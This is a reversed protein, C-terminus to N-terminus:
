KLQAAIEQIRANMEVPYADMIRRIEQITALTNIAQEHSDNTKDPVFGFEAIMLKEPTQKNDPARSVARFARYRVAEDSTDMNLIQIRTSIDKEKISNTQWNTKLLLPALQSSMGVVDIHSLLETISADDALRFSRKFESLKATQSDSLKGNADIVKKFAEIEHRQQALTFNFRMSPELLQLILDRKAEDTVDAAILAKTAAADMAPQPESPAAEVPAPPEDGMIGTGELEKLIQLRAEATDAAEAPTLSGAGGADATAGEVPTSPPTASDASGKNEKEAELPDSNTSTGIDKPDVPSFKGCASLSAVIAFTATVMTATKRILRTDKNAKM